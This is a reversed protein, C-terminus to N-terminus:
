RSKVCYQGAGSYGVPCASKRPVAPRADRGALCFGGIGEYGPPCAGRKPIAPRAGAAPTCYSGNGYYGPPCAGERITPMPAEARALPWLMAGATAAIAMSRSFGCM